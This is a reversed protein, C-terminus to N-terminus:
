NILYSQGSILDVALSETGALGRGRTGANSGRVWFRLVLDSPFKGLLRREAGRGSPLERSIFVLGCVGWRAERAKKFGEGVTKSRM